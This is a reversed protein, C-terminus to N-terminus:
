AALGQVDEEIVPDDALLSEISEPLAEQLFAVYRATSHDDKPYYHLVKIM